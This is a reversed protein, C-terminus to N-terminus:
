LEDSAEKIADCDGSDSVETWTPPICTSRFLLVVGTGSEEACTLSHGCLTSASECGVVHEQAKGDASLGTGVLTTCGSTAECDPAELDLCSERSTVSGDGGLGSDPLEDEGARMGPSEECPESCSSDDPCGSVLCATLTMILAVPTRLRKRMSGLIRKMRITCSSKSTERNVEHAVRELVTQM